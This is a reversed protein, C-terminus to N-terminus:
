IRAPDIVLFQFREHMHDSFWTILANCQAQSVTFAIQQGVENSIIVNVRPATRREISM